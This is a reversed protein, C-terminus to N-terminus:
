FTIKATVGYTAPDNLTSSVFMREVMTPRADYKTNLVNRGWVSVETKGLDVAARLNLLGHTPIFTRDYIKQGETEGYRAVLLDKSIATSPTKDLWQYNANLTVNSVRYQGGVTFQKKTVATFRNGTLDLGSTPDTYKLFKPDVYTGSANITLNNTIDASVDVDVGYNRAEAANRVLVQVLSPSPVITTIQGDKVKNYFGAVSYTVKSAISGKVGVEYETVNEPNFPTSAAYSAFKLQQGGSKYGTSVKGYVMTVDNIKYNVGATWSVKDYSKGNHAECSNALQYEDGFCSLLASTVDSRGSRTTIKKNDHTYRVGGFVGLKDTVDYTLHGYVGYSKNDIHANYLSYSSVVQILNQDKGWEHFYMGGFVYNLKGLDGSYQLESSYQSMDVNVYAHYLGASTGDINLAPDSKVNRWANILKLNNWNNTISYTTVKTDHSPVFDNTGAYVEEPTALASSGGWGYTMRRLDKNEKSRFIDAALITSFNDTPQFLVKVRGQTANQNDYKKGDTLNTFIGDRDLNQVAARIAITSSVPVNIVGTQNFENFRGYTLSVSGSTENLKPDNTQVLVAGGTTNRGFLTGQPGSLIQVDKVDLLSGNIGYARAVYVGDVYMGVTTDINSSLDLQTQGRISYVLGNPTTPSEIAGFGPVDSLYTANKNTLEDGSYYRITVPVDQILEPTRRATVTITGADQAYAATPLLMATALILSKVRM